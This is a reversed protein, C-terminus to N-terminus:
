NTHLISHLHVVMCISIAVFYTAADVFVTYVCLSHSVCRVFINEINNKIKIRRSKTAHMSISTEKEATSLGTDSCKQHHIRNLSSCVGYVCIAATFEALTIPSHGLENFISKFLSAFPFVFFHVFSHFAYYHFHKPAPGMLAVFANLNSRM